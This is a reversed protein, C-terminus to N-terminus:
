ARLFSTSSITIAGNMRTMKLTGSLTMGPYIVQDGTPIPFQPERKPTWHRQKEEGEGDEEQSPGTQPLGTPGNKDLHYNDGATVAV